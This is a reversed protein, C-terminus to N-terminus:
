FDSRFVIGWDPKVGHKRFIGNPEDLNLVLETIIPQNFGSWRFGAFISHQDFNNNEISRTTIYSNWGALIAVGFASVETSARATIAAGSEASNVSILYSPSVTCSFSLSPTVRVGLSAELSVPIVNMLWLDSRQWGFASNAYDYNLETIRNGQIDGPFTALPIGVRLLLSGEAGYFTDDKLGISLSPNGFRFSTEYDGKERLLTVFSLPVEFESVIGQNLMYRVGLVSSVSNIQVGQQTTSFSFASSMSVKLDPESQQAILLSGSFLVLFLFLIRWGIM